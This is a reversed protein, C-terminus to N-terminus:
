DLAGGVRWGHTIPSKRAIDSKGDRAPNVSIKILGFLVDNREKLYYVPPFSLHLGASSTLIVAKEASQRESEANHEQLKQKLEHQRGNGGGLYRRRFNLACDSVSPAIGYRLGFDLGPIVLSPL